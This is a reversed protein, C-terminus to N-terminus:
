IVALETLFTTKRNYVISEPFSFASENQVENVLSLMLVRVVVDSVRVKLIQSSSSTLSSSPLLLLCKM